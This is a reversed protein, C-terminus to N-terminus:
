GSPFVDPSPHRLGEAVALAAAASRSPVELKELIREVHTSVTRSSVVLEAAIETNSLGRVLLSLVDIERPTLGRVDAPEFVVLARVDPMGEDRCPVVRVSTWGDEQVVFRESSVPRVRQMRTCSVPRARKMRTCSCHRVGNLPLLDGEVTLLAADAGPALLDHLARLSRTPDCAAALVPNLAALTACATDTPHREDDVSLNLVGTARGDPTRLWMTVGERYGAPRLVGAITGSSARARRPVDRMRAPAGTALIGLEACEAAFETGHMHALVDPAYGDCELTRVGGGLPDRVALEGAVFPVIPRLSDLLSSTVPVDDRV